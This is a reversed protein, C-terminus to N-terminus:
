TTLQISVTCFHFKILSSVDENANKSTLEFSVEENFETKVRFGAVLGASFDSPSDRSVSIASVNRGSNYPNTKQRKSFRINSLNIHHLLVKTSPVIHLMREANNETHETSDRPM